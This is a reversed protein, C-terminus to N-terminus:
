QIKGIQSLDYQGEVAYQQMVFLDPPPPRLYYVSGPHVGILRDIDQIRFSM